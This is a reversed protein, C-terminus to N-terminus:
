FRYGVTLGFGTNKLISKDNTVSKDEPNVNLLGLQTDVQLFIGNALEYGAFINAGADFRRLYTGAPTDDNVSNTFEVNQKVDQYSMKGNIAFAAYPGFGLLVFNNGLQGRYVLNLPVEIYNVRLKIDHSTGIVNVNAGKVSFQLGPQFYIEPVFPILVNVGAHFGPILNNELREGANDKGNLNQFNIGAFVGPRIGEQANIALSFVCFLIAFVSAKM